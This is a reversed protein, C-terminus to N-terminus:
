YIIKELYLGSSPATPGAKKRDKSKIIEPIDAVDFVDKGVNILTGVMIRVQNHMFSRGCIRVNIFNSKKKIEITEITRISTKSQCDTSRFANLDHRGIFFFSAKQMKELNIKQPVFWSRNESLFSQTERNLIRYLYFKKKASFRAHFSDDVLKSNLITITNKKKKLFFNIAKFIKSHDFKINNIDFHAVQGLAHVGADTRGAVYLKIKENFVLTLSEEIESQISRGNTQSQWGVYNTGNYEILLKIRRM